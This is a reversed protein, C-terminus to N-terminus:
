GGPGIGAGGKRAPVPAAKLGRSELLPEIQPDRGYFERFVTALDASFGRSLVKARLFDGNARLLGGHTDMWHETDKALVDSWIYAYYGAAYGIPDSFIHSFYPSHYRPPVPAFDMGARKLVAAEFKGVGPPPPLRDAALQHWAQDIIAAALYESSRFGEDFRRAALVKDLLDRPMAEGTQYHRAMHALVGPDHAWMENFQSPYEVFDSPTNAGGFMPYQVSSFMGHLAHGFEHFATTVEDFSLLAPAGAAPKAINLHNAVVPHLDLLRSQTVYENMWAGGQKNDRAFPDFILLALTAGGADLVEFVRVDEQYVPLDKRERFDLGYLEHAAYFVGDRLVHDLEFYPRVQADDFQFERKRLREAYYEWDWAQLSFAPQHRAACDEDILKQLRAAQQRASAMAAPALGALMHNVAATTGATEDALAYAAWDSYGLLAAKRARLTAMHVILATTDDAGGSGRQVSAKFIRERLARRSLHALAPQGTTNKLPIAWRGEQHRAKAAAAAAAVQEASFGDLEAPDDVYIAGDNAAKLVTQTFTTASASLDENIARLQAQEAGGLAAGSRLFLTHYRELLRLSEADLGLTARREYLDRVRGFLAADLFIADHHAALKPSMESDTADHEPNTNASTLNGFVTSVRALLQGSRELAAITNEFSPAQPNHAIAAVEELQQAM